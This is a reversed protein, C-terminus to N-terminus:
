EGRWAMAKGANIAEDIAEHYYRLAAELDGDQHRKWGMALRMEADAVDAGMGRTRDVAQKAMARKEEVVTALDEERRGPMVPTGVAEEAEEYAKTLIEVAGNMDNTEIRETGKAMLAEARTMDAGARRGTEISERADELRRMANKHEANIRGLEARANNALEVAKDHNGDRLDNFAMEVLDKAWSVDLGFSETLTLNYWAKVVDMLAARHDEDIGEIAKVADLTMTAAQRYSKSRLQEKATIVMPRAVRIDGGWAKVALLVNTMVRLWTDLFATTSDRATSLAKSLNLRARDYDGRELDYAAKRLFQNVLVKNTGVNFLGNLEKRLEAYTESIEQYEEDTAKTVRSFGKMM